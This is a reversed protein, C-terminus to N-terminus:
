PAAAGQARGAGVLQVFVDELTPKIPEIRAMSARAAQAPDRDGAPRAGCGRGPRAAVRRVSRRRARGARRRASRADRRSQRRRGAPDRRPDRQAQAREPQRAGGAQGRQDARHSQLVRGRGHLAHHRRSHRGRRRADILDWFRRRSAPDVGSTPEDLFLIAPEHLIACGLALRQKWGGALDRRARGDRGALGAMDLAFKLRKELRAGNVGYVGGFFRLNEIVTLDSYLSFKQSMYGIQERVREPVRSTSAPSWRRAAARACCGACCASPRRSARATPASSASSREPGREFSVADVAIFDGFRKALRDAVIRIESDPPPSTM